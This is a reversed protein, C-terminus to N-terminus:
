YFISKEFQKKLFVYLCFSEEKLKKMLKKLNRATAALFANIQASDKGSLYNKQMRYQAKLHAIVPEIAARRRFKKRKKRKEYESDTKLAKGPTPVRTNGIEKEEAAGTM